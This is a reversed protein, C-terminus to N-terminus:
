RTMPPAERNMGGFPNEQLFDPIFLGAAGDQQDWIESIGSGLAYEMVQRRREPSVERNLRINDAAKYLPTYQSMLSVPIDPGLEAAIFSLSEEAGELGEPLLLLRILVGRAAIGAADTVLNSGCQRAMEVLSRRNEDVYDRSGSLKEAAYPSSYKIDPLYIDVLGDLLSLSEASLYGNTNYVIPLSLGKRVAIRLATIISAIHPTPSVLEVNHCGKSQLDLFIDALGDADTTEGLDNRSIQWNQCFVCRLTCGSFFVTGAGKTGSLPPEEGFHPLAKAVKAAGGQMCFGREGGLRNVGCRRPCLSCREMSSRAKKERIELGSSGLSIYFPEVPGSRAQRASRKRSIDRYNM